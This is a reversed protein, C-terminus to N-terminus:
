NVASAGTAARGKELVGRATVLRNHADELEVLADTRTARLSNSIQAENSSIYKRLYGISQALLAAGQGYHAHTVDQGAAPPLKDLFDSAAEAREKLDTSHQTLDANARKGVGGVIEKVQDLMDKMRSELLLMIEFYDGQYTQTDTAPTLSRAREIQQLCAAYQTPDSGARAALVRALRRHPLPSKPDNKAAGEFATLAEAFQSDGLLADGLAVQAATDKPNAAIVDRLMKIANATDGKSFLSNARLRSLDADNPALRAAREIESVAMDPMQRDQYAIILKKRLNLDGPNENIAQRLTEIANSLDGTQRYRDAVAELNVKDSPPTPAVLTPETLLSAGADTNLIAPQNKRSDPDNKQRANTVLPLAPPTAESPTGQPNAGNNETGSEGSVPPNGATNRAVQTNRTNKAPQKAPKATATKKGSSPTKEPTLASTDAPTNNRAASNENGNTGNGDTGNARSTAVGGTKDATAAASGARGSTKQGGADASNGNGDTTDPTNTAVGTDDQGKDGSKDKGNKAVKDKKSKKPDTKGIIVTKSLHINDALHSPIGLYKDINDVMLALMQENKLRMKGIQADITFPQSLPTIWQESGADQMLRADTKLSAKDMDSSVMLISHAGIIGALKQLSAPAIPEVLESAAIAHELLARRISPHDPSYLIVQYKRSERVSTRLMLSLASNVDDRKAPTGLPRQVVLLLIPLGDPTNPTPHQTDPTPTGAETKHGEVTTQARVPTNLLSLSLCCGSLLLLANLCRSQEQLWQVSSLRQKAPMDWCGIGLMRCGCKSLQRM